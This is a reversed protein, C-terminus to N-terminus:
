GVVGGEEEVLLGALAVAAFGVHARVLQAVAERCTPSSGVVGDVWVFYPRAVAGALYSFFTRPLLRRAEM